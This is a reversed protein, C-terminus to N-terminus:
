ILLTHHVLICFLGLVHGPACVLFECCIALFLPLGFMSVTASLTSGSHVGEFNIGTFVALLTGMLTSFARM